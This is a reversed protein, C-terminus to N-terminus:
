ETPAACRRAPLLHAVTPACHISFHVAAFDNQITSLFDGMPTAAIYLVAPPFVRDYKPLMAKGM